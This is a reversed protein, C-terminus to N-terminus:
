TAEKRLTTGNTPADIKTCVRGGPWGYYCNNGPAAEYRWSQLGAAQIGRPGNKFLRATAARGPTLCSRPKYQCWESVGLLASGQMLAVHDFPKQSGDREYTGM